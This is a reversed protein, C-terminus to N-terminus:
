LYALLLLGVSIVWGWGIFIDINWDKIKLELGFLERVWDM